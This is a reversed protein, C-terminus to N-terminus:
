ESKNLVKILDSISIGEKEAIKKISELNKTLLKSLSQNKETLEPEGTKNGLLMDEVMKEIKQRKQMQKKKVQDM